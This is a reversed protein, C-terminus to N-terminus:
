KDSEALKYRGIRDNHLSGLYLYGEHEEVSTVMKIVDGTTDHLSSVVEGQENLGLVFGHDIPKPKLWDPLKASLEKLFPKPHMADVAANRPSALALWFRGNRNSSIGDPVGPLNDIFVETSGAKEGKLWYKLVRYRWTENVLVFDENESLAVGNAFYLDKMLVSVAKTEPDYVMFRGYPKTELLDLMFEHQQFKSSADTFYMKGDSAIDVDDTFRFPVGEAVTALVTVQAEPSISLLGKYADCVILNGAADFHLGLPRGGLDVWGEVEGDTVRIIKGDQTGGYIRGESDVAVDEPGDILGLGILESKQLKENVAYPGTLEPGQQPQWATSEVPSPM